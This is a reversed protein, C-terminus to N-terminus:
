KGVGKLQVGGTWWLSCLKWVGDELELTTTELATRAGPLGLSHVAFVYHRGPVAGPFVARNAYRAEVLSRSEMEELTPRLGDAVEKTAQWTTAKKWSDSLSEQFFHNFRGHLLPRM